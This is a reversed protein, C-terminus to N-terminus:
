RTRQPGRSAFYAKNAEEKRNGYNVTIFTGGGKSDHVSSVLGWPFTWHLPRQLTADPEALGSSFLRDARSSDGFMEALLHDHARKTEAEVALSYSSWDKAGPPYLDVTMSVEVLMEDYFCLSVLLEKGDMEGGRLRYHIWPLTGYDESRAFASAPGNRFQEQSVAPDIRIGNPLGVAGDHRDIHM